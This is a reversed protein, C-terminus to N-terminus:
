FIETPQGGSILHRENVIIAPVAHIGREQYFRELARVADGFEGSALVERARQEPLGVSAAIRALVDRSGVDESDTFYGRLLAHKLEAQCGEGAAWHLLRHADFTNYIRERPGIVFGLEAGRQCIM